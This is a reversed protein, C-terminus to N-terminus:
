PQVAIGPLAAADGVFVFDGHACKCVDGGSVFQMVPADQFFLIEGRNRPCLNRESNAGRGGVIPKGLGFLVGCSLLLCSLGLRDVSIGCGSDASALRLM